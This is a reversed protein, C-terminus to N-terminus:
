ENEYKELAARADSIAMSLDHLFQDAEAFTMQVPGNMSFHINQGLTSTSYETRKVRRYYGTDYGDQGVVLLLNTGNKSQMRGEIQKKNKKYELNWM